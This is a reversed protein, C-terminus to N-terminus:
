DLHIRFAYVIKTPVDSPILGSSIVPTSSIIIIINFHIKSFNFPLTHLPTEQSLIPIESQSNQFHLSTEIEMFFVPFKNFVQTDISKEVRLENIDILKNDNQLVTTAINVV